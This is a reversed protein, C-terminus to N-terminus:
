YIAALNCLFSNMSLSSYGVLIGLVFGNIAFVIFIIFVDRSTMFTNFVARTEHM